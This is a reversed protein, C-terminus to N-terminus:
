RDGHRHLLIPRAIEEKAGSQERRGLCEDKQALASPLRTRDVQRRCRRAIIVLRRRWPLRGPGEELRVRGHAGRQDLGADLTLAHDQFPIHDRPPAPRKGAGADLQPMGVPVSEVIQEAVPQAAM